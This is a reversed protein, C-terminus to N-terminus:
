QPHRNSPHRLRSAAYRYQDALTDRDTGPRRIPYVTALGDRLAQAEHATVNLDVCPQDNRRVILEVSHENRTIEVFTGDGIIYSDYDNSPQKKHTMTNRTRNHTQMNLLVRACWPQQHALLNLRQHANNQM